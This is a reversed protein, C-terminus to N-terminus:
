NKVAKKTMKQEHNNNICIYQLYLNMSELISLVLLFLTKVSCQPMFIEENYQMFYVGYGFTNCVLATVKIQTMYGSKMCM